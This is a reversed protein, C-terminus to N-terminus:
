INCKLGKNLGEKLEANVDIASNVGSGTGQGAFAGMGHQIMYYPRYDPAGIALIKACIDKLSQSGDALREKVATSFSNLEDKSLNSVAEMQLVTIAQRATSDTVRRADIGGYIRSFAYLEVATQYNKAALCKSMGRFTDAPTHKNSLSSIGECGIDHTPALNGPASYNKIEAAIASNVSMAAFLFLIPTLKM